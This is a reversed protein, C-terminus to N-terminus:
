IHLDEPDIDVSYLDFGCDESYQSPLSQVFIEPAIERILGQILMALAIPRPISVTYRQLKRNILRTPKELDILTKLEAILKESEDYLVIVSVTAKDDIIKFAASAERFQIQMKRADQELWIKFEKGDKNISSYFKQFFLKYSELSDTNVQAALLSHMVDETKRLIGPPSAKPPMFVKVFGLEPLKGERNCRGASQVISSLGTFARYVVPFDIDVGAEVLQTSIVRLPTVGEQLKNKIINIIKLRHAPCMSASLHYTGEPMLAYLDKCDRRTNVICLVREHESLEEALKEWSYKKQRDVPIEIKTRQLAAYLQTPDPIIERVNSLNEFGPQTATSLLISCSFYEVLQQLVETCPYLLEPPLLQAEDLIIISNVINHLKRCSGPRYSYLSEFFQVNTTVIIPADWNEAALQTQLTEKEINTSSHHELVNDKGVFSRLVEATQEIISTYPIVYIIRRKNYQLAHKFAFATGSLTKGGGTPVTLSFLGPADMAAAECNKRIEARTRNLAHDDVTALKKNLEQFFCKALDALKAQKKRVISKNTDSFTEADLRDADVLCSFMMRIWLHMNKEQFKRPPLLKINKWFKNNQNIWKKVKTENLIAAEIELRKVLSGGPNLGAIYDPLGAHHGAIIYALILGPFNFEKKALAAGAGSHRRERGDYEDGDYLSHSLLYNQFTERAKGIDHLFGAALLWNESDFQKAFSAALNAVQSSHETLTQWEYIPSDTKSRAYIESM